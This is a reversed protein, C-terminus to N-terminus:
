IDAVIVLEVVDDRVDVCEVVLEGEELTLLPAVRVADDEATLVPVADSVVNGVPTVFDTVTVCDKVPKDVGVDVTDTEEDTDTLEEAAADNDVEGLAWSDTESYPVSVTTSENEGEADTEDVEEIDFEIEEDVVADGTTDREVVAVPIVDLDVVEETV